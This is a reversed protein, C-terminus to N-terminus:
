FAAGAINTFIDSKEQFHSICGRSFHGRNAATAPEEHIGATALSNKSSGISETDQDDHTM